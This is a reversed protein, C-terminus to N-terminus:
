LNEGEKSFAQEDTTVVEGEKSLAQEDTTVVEEEKSFAQEDTTVVEGEKSFAQEDTTVVEGEKSFAQEDTTVVEEEKSFAQEDTTVVEGEKSFAQEDTTVVEGEKSFAQEETTVVEEEKSLEQEETTVVEEEKSLAQEDTTVVEEEKSLAQEETTVVEGENSLEQEETTVVEEEKSLAQEDTTVVEGEKSFAQEDTTVVEGEKSFAQEETTVVEEEKSLAQEETTVVEEEKSLAQEETTVVEGENSFAQEETTVVEGENSFAQEETTVVEEENSLAQEETTVVEEENSLAQEETTVVEEENSLAQEETTVVEEENSLAQEETTVVEEEKSLAQEETTVVEEENSLAQEETTVVEGENSLEQEETTVVEEEKSLEQEETTVVEEENSLEQEETTVVEEENSLEQLQPPAVPQEGFGEWLGNLKMAVGLYAGGAGRYGSFDRDEIDGFSYGTYLRMEPTLYYGAEISYGTETYDGSPQSIWRAEGVLDMNYGLRYTARLQALSVTTDGIFDNALYTTSNRLAYKGYFEWNWSPALIAEGSFVHDEYGTGKGLLISEPITSPNKRYQYRFLANFKDSSPDRYALGLQLNHTAGLGELSQNASSAQRYSGLASLSGSIRGALNASIDTNTGGSSTRRTFRTSAKFDPSDTYELGVSYSEAGNFGLSSASQGVAAPQSFRGGSGTRGFFDGVTKEYSLDGRLGPAITLKQGLGISGQGRFESMTGVIGYQAKITTETPLTFTQQANVNINTFSQGEFNGRTYWTHSLGLTIGKIAEWDLRVGTRDSAVSDTNSSLTTENVASFNLRDAIPFTLNSRLQSSTRELAQPQINDQRSRHIWDVGLNVKGWLRQSLGASITSLTNDVEKGPIPDTLTDLFEELDDIPRPAVGFNEERDYKAKLTTSNTVKANAQVGYRTQGPVFSTTANNAFGEEAERYYATGDLWENLRANAEVRYAMGEVSSNFETYNKSEAYEAILNSRNGLALKADVGRLEFDQTGKEERVYSAGLWSAGETGRAFHYRFRGGVINTETGNEEEFQYTVVIRRVLLEETEPDWETRLIPEKFLITGRDYDIEYETSRSLQKRELVTGPRNLEELELYVEESGPVLLRRSFFYYGPTGDPVITDRQFGEVNTGYFGTIQLNGLNYNAKAGHLQRSISSFQQSSTAFEQTSFDGWMAYDPEAGAVLSSRELRLYVQDMSPTLNTSTSSDGYTTYDLSRGQSGGGLGSHNNRNENLPRHSNYAGTFQWKGINGTAFFASTVDFETNNDEDIPLFDRFSGYYDTGRGGLRLDVFGTLLTHGRLVTEFQMQTFAKFELSKANITVTQAERSSQLLATFEGNIAEVQFGPQDLNLDTGLFEGNSSYLTVTSNWQSM